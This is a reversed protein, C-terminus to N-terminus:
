SCYGVVTMGPIQTCQTSAPCSPASIVCLAACEGFIIGADGNNGTNFCGLGPECQAHNMCTDGPMRRGIGEIGGLERCMGNAEDQTWLCGLSPACDQAFVDCTSVRGDFPADNPGRADAVIMADPADPPETCALLMLSTLLAAYKM